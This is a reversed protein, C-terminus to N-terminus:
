GLSRIKREVKRKARKALYVVDSFRRIHRLNYVYKNDMLQSKLTVGRAHKCDRRCLLDKEDDKMLDELRKFGKSSFLAQYDKEMLNGFSHELGYDNCCAVVDGNPLLVNERLDKSCRIHGTKHVNNKTPDTSEKQDLIKLLDKVEGESQSGNAKLKTSKEDAFQRM